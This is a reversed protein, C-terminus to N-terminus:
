STKTKQANHIMLSHLPMCMSLSTEVELSLDDNDM